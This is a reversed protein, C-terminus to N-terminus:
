LRRRASTTSFVSAATGHPSPSNILQAAAVPAPIRHAPLYLQAANLLNMLLTGAGGDAGARAGRSSRGRCRRRSRPRRSAAPRRSATWRCPRPSPPGHSSSNSTSSSRLASRSSCAGCAPRPTGCGSKPRTAIGRGFSASSGGAHAARRSSACLGLTRMHVGPSTATSQDHVRRCADTALEQVRCNAKWPATSVAGCRGSSRAHGGGFAPRCPWNGLGHSV